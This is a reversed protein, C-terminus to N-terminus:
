VIEIICIENIKQHLSGDHKKGTVLYSDNIINIVKYKRDEILDFKKCIIMVNNDIAYYRLQDGTYIQGLEITKILDSEYM